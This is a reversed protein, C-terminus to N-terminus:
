EFEAVGDTFQRFVRDQDTQCVIVRSQSKSIGSMSFCAQRWAVEGLFFCVGFMM